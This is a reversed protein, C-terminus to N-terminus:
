LEIYQLIEDPYLYILTNILSTGAKNLVMLYILSTCFSYASCGYVYCQWSIGYQSCCLYQVSAKSALESRATYVKGSFMQIM